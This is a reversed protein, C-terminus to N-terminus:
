VLRSHFRRRRPREGCPSRPYFHGCGRRRACAACDSEALLAHISIKAFRRIARRGMTARRLSLTSLFVTCRRSEAFLCRREGCPSRPYFDCGHRFRGTDCPREGCPSRPYFNLTRSSCAAALPDSEALLAHISIKGAASVATVTLRREGCPSRPYFYTISRTSWM